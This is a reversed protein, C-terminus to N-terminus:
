KLIDDLSLTDNEDSKDGSNSDKGQSAREQASPANGSSGDTSTAFGIINEIELTQRESPNTARAIVVQKPLISVVKFDSFVEGAKVLHTEDNAVFIAMPKQPNYVISKLNVSSFDTVTVEPTGDKAGFQTEPTSNPADGQKQDDAAKEDDEAVVANPSFFPDKYGSALLDNLSLFALAEKSEQKEPTEKKEPTNVRASPTLGTAATPLPPKTSKSNTDSAKPVNPTTAPPPNDSKVPAQVNANM